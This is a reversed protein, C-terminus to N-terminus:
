LLGCKGRINEALQLLEAISLECGKIGGTVPWEGKYEIVKAVTSALDQVTTLTIKANECDKPAIARRNHFDIQTQLTSM